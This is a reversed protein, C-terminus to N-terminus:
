TNGIKDQMVVFSKSYQNEVAVYSYFDNVIFFLDLQICCIRAWISIARWKNGISHRLRKGYGIHHASQIFKITWLQISRQVAKPLNTKNTPQCTLKDLDTSSMTDFSLWLILWPQSCRSIAEDDRRGLSVVQAHLPLSFDFLIM